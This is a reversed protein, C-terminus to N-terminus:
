EVILEDAVILSPKGENTSGVPFVSGANKLAVRLYRANVNGLDVACEVHRRNRPEKNEVGVPALDTYAKGDTSHSVIVERAAVIRSIPLNLMCATIKSIPQESKLDITIVMDEGDKGRVVYSPKVSFMNVRLGDTLIRTTDGKGILSIAGLAKHAVYEREFIRGLLKGGEFTGAKITVRGEIAIPQTYVASKETPISGDLTYRVATTDYQNTLAVTLQNTEANYSPVAVISFINKSYNVGYVDLHPMYGKLRKAFDYYDKREKGTWAVEAIALARPFVRHEVDAATPTYETWMNGQVGLIHKQKDASLEEPIPEFSYVKEIPIYGGIGLPEFYPDYDFYDLYCHTTPTMIVDHGQEAAVIGGQIGRWSMVTAEEPLGGELIEDWGVLKRGKSAIFKEIRKIFYSQLEEENKLKEKKMLAQCYKCTKWRTKPCEDGGIHIYQSPFLEIVETLVDELMRFTEEKPCFVDEFVGWKTAAEFPGDTCALEPYASLAALAHGPMEIEPIVTVFRQRAYEIVEKVEEQTYYGGHEKGDYVQPYTDSYSGVLTEKRKAGIETLKPHSKIEIRWGQDDTLHWHFTNMKHLALMDIYKKVFDVSAFHRVVDLHMGRYTFRPHDNIVVCPITWTVSQKQKSHIQPPLLQYLTQVAYFAGAATHSLIEVGGTSVNLLYGENGLEDDKLMSFHIANSSHESGEIITLSMGSAAEFHKAFLTAVEKYAAEGQPIYITTKANLKFKGEAPKMEQPLPILNYRNPTNGSCASLLVAPLLVALFVLRLLKM